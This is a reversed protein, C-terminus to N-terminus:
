LFNYDIINNEPIETAYIPLNGWSPFKGQNKDNKQFKQGAAAVLRLSSAKFDWSNRLFQSVLMELFGQWTMEVMSVSCLVWTSWVVSYQVISSSILCDMEATSYAFLLQEM